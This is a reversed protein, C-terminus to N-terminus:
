DQDFHFFSLFEEYNELKVEYDLQVKCIIKGDNDVKAQCEFLDKSIFESYNLFVQKFETSLEQRAQEVKEQQYKQAYKQYKLFKIVSIILYIFFTILIMILAYPKWVEPNNNSISKAILLEPIVLFIILLGGGLTWQFLKRNQDQM